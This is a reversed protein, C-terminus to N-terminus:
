EVSTVSAGQQFQYTKTAPKTKTRKRKTLRLMREILNQWCGTKVPFWNFDLFPPFALLYLVNKEYVWSDITKDAEQKQCLCSWHMHSMM